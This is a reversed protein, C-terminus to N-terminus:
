CVGSGACIFFGHNFWQCFVESNTVDSGDKLDAMTCGTHSDIDNHIFTSKYLALYVCYLYTSSKYMTRACCYYTGTTVLRRLHCFTQPHIMEQVSVM